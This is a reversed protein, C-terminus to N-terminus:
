RAAPHPRDNDTGKVMELVARADERRWRTWQPSYFDKSRYGSRGEVYTEDRNNGTLDYRDQMVEVPPLPNVWIGALKGVEDYWTDIAPLDCFRKTAYFVDCHVIPFCNNGWRDGGTTYLVSPKQQARVISDWGQTLMIGDDGWSPLIWEGHTENMLAAYYHAGMAYGYREPAQWVHCGLEVATIGTEIDDPDYAVFIELLSPRDATSRLSQVSTTLMRSRRRSAMVVSIVDPFRADRPVLDLAIM